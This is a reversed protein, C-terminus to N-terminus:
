KPLFIPVWTPHHANILALFLIFDLTLHITIVYLLSETRKFVYGQILAFIYIMIFGWGTFGLEYLFSTFLTAQAINAWTFSLYRRLIGLVTSVFFLEDWIGLANTGIFLRTINSMGPEVSWNLYAGTNKLYFPLLFYSIIATLFIYAIELKYWGRGHHFKFRVLYDKYIFRSVLYPILVALILAGGMELMHQYSIDTTIPTFGLIAISLYLLALDKALDRRVLPLTLLGAAWLVWGEPKIQLGIMVVTSICLWFINLFGFWKQIM